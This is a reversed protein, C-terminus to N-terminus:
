TGMYVNLSHVNTTVEEPQTSHQLLLRRLEAQINFVGSSLVGEEPITQRRLISRMNVQLDTVPNSELSEAQINYTLLLSRIYGQLGSISSSVNAPTLLMAEVVKAAPLDTSSDIYGHDELPYLTTTLTVLQYPESTLLKNYDPKCISAKDLEGFLEIPVVTDQLGRPPRGHKPKDEKSIESPLVCTKCDTM